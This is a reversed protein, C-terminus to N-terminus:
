REKSGPLGLVFRTLKQEIEHTVSADSNGIVAVALEHDPYYSLISSMGGGGGRHALRPTGELQIVFVGYGHPSVSGDSLSTPTTMKEYSQQSVVKSSALLRAWTALDGATGCLAGASFTLNSRFPRANILEGDRLTYSNARNKIIRNSDCYLMSKLGLPEFFTDSMFEGYPKQTVREIIIGLLYYGSNNYAWKEGPANKMPRGTIMEMIEEQSLDLLGNVELNVESKDAVGSTHNLLQHVTVESGPLPYEPIYEKITADLDIKGKDVLHMIAAATFQKTISAIGFRTNANVEVDLELDAFGYGKMLLTDRGKVVAISLGPAPDEEALYTALSDLKVSLDGAEGSM